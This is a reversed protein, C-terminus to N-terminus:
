AAQAAILTQLFRECRVLQTLEIFEDAKHAQEISGPGCIVTPIGAQQFQGGETAYAVKHRVTEDALTGILAHLEAQDSSDLAPVQHLAELDIRSDADVAQM